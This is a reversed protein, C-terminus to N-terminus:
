LNRRVTKELLQIASEYPREAGSTYINRGSVETDHLFCVIGLLLVVDCVNLHHGFYSNIDNYDYVLLIDELCDGVSHCM